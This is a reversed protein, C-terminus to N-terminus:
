SIDLAMCAASGCCCGGFQTSRKMAANAISSREVTTFGKQAFFGSASETLLVIRKKGQEKALAIMRDVLKSGIGTKQVDSPVAVSRLLVDDGYYEFGAIGVVVAGDLALHFDTVGTGISETPLRRSQLIFRIVDNDEDTAKRFTLNM